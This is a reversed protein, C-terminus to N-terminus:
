ARGGEPAGSSNEGDSKGDGSDLSGQEPESQIRQEHTGQRREMEEVLQQPYEVRSHVIGTLVRTFAKAISDLDKLTLDSRDLQGAELRDQILKRVTGEIRGPTPRSLSRVAAEAGDALMVIATEKSLPVPGDYCFNEELVSEKGNEETAKQYFYGTKTTGHHEPIFAQIEKPLGYEKALELGDKVHSTVILASLNPSLKDHPNDGSLQNEVFFYPRKIKGVDHYYSGVRALLSNAKSAEAGSEALNAVMISHHYTGPAELMLRKLLPHNPNSLELLKVSTIIGFASELFPLIGIALVASLLGNSIGILIDRWADFQYLTGAGSALNVILIAAINAGAVHLGARMLDSRQGVQVVSFAGVTGGVLAVFAYRFEMGTFLGISVGLIGGVFVAIRADLLIALLMTGAAVPLLYGSIPLLAKAIFLVGVIILGVLLLRNENEFDKRHFYYLYAGILVVILLAILAAAATTTMDKTDRLLGADKLRIIDDETVISGDSIITQDKVFKVPEVANMAVQKAQLTAQSDYFLNARLYNDILGIALVEIEESYDLARIEDAIRKKYGELASEKIGEELNVRLFLALDRRVRSIESDEVEYLGLLTEDELTFPIVSSIALLKEEALVEQAVEEDLIDVYEERVRGIDVFINDIETLIEESVRADLSYKDAVQNAAQKKLETTTPWDIFEKPAKIPGPAPKGVVVNVTEPMLSIAFFVTLAVWFLAALLMRRWKIQRHFAKGVKKKGKTKFKMRWLRAWKNM